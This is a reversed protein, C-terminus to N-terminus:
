SFLFILLNSTQFNRQKSERYYEPNNVTKLNGQTRTEIFNNAVEYIKLLKTTKV